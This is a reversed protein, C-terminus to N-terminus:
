HLLPTTTNDPMKEQLQLWERFPSQTIEKTIQFHEISTQKESNSPKGVKDM